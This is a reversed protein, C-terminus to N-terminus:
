FAPLSIVAYMNDVSYDSLEGEDMLKETKTLLEEFSGLGCYYEIAGIHFATRVPPREHKEKAERMRREHVLYVSEMIDTIDQATM